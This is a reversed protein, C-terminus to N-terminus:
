FGTIVLIAVLTTKKMPKEERNNDKINRGPNQGTLVFVVFQAGFPLSIAGNDSFSGYRGSKPSSHTTEHSPFRGGIEPQANLQSLLPSATLPVTTGSIPFVNARSPWERSLEQSPHPFSSRPRSPRHSTAHNNRNDRRSLLHPSGDKRADAPLTE